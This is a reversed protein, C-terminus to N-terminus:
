KNESIERMIKRAEEVSRAVGIIGSAGKIKELTYHQLRSVSGKPTKVEIAIFYGRHCILFDPVGSRWLDTPHYVWACPFENKLMIFIKRRLYTEPNM